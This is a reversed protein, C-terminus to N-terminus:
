DFNYEFCVALRDDNWYMWTVILRITFLLKLLLVLQKLVDMNSNILQKYTKRHLLYIHKLVDM